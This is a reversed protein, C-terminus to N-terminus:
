PLLLEAVQEIKSKRVFLDSMQLLAVTLSDGDPLTVDVLLRGNFDVGHTMLEVASGTPCVRIVLDLADHYGAQGREPADYGLPRARGSLFIGGHPFLGIKLLDFDFTDGDVWRKVFVKGDYM